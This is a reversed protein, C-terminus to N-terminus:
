RFHAYNYFKTAIDMKLIYFKNIVESWFGVESEAPMTKPACSTSAETNACPRASNLRLAKGFAKRHPTELSM